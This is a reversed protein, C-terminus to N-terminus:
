KTSPSLLPGLVVDGTAVLVATRDKITKTHNNITDTNGLTSIFPKVLCQQSGAVYLFGKLGFCRFALEQLGQLISQIDACHVDETVNETQKNKNVATADPTRFSHPSVM